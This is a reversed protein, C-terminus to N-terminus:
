FWMKLEGSIVPTKWDNAPYKMDAHKMWKCRLHFGTRDLMQWDCGLGYAFDRYDIPVQRVTDSYGIPVQKVSDAMWANKAYWNEFGALGLLYLRDTLEVAQESRILCGWLLTNKADRKKSFVQPSPSIGNIAAYMSVFVSRNLGFLSAINYSADLEGNFTYKRSSPVYSSRKFAYAHDNLNRDARSDDAYSVFSEYMSLYNSRLGGAEPGLPDGYARRRFSEDGLRKHYSCDMSNDLLDLGWRSYSSHFLTFLDAGNLRYPFYLVDPGEQLQMHNGYTIKFHGNKRMSFPSVSCNFGAMNQTYTSAIFKSAVPDVLHAGFPFFGDMAKAFSFPSYFGPLACFFDLLLPFLYGNEIRAYLAPAPKLPRHTASISDFSNNKHELLTTDAMSCAIDIHLMLKDLIKGKFDASLILPEKYFSSDCSTDGNIADITYFNGRFYDNYGVDDDYYVRVLNMGLTFFEAGGDNNRKAFRKALRGYVAHRYSDGIGKGKIEPVRYVPHYSLDDNLHVYEREHSDFRDFSGYFVDAYLNWPLGASELGIGYFPKKNWAVRGTREGSVMNKYYFAEVSEEIECPLYDWAFLRPQYEWITLPSTEDWQIGGLKLRLSVPKLINVGVFLDEHIYAPNDSKDHRDQLPTFGPPYDKGSKEDKKIHNGSMTHQFGIKAMISGYRGLSVGMGLRLLGENGEWGSQIWSRDDYMFSPFNGSMSHYQIKLRAEGVMFVPISHWGIISANMKEELKEILADDLQLYNNKLRLTDKSESCRGPSFGCVLLLTATIYIPISRYHLYNKTM